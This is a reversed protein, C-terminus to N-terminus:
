FFCVVWDDEQWMRDEEDKRGTTIDPLLDRSEHLVVFSEQQM